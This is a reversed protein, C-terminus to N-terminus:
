RSRWGARRGPVPGTTEAIVTLVDVVDCASALVCMDRPKFGGHATWRIRIATIEGCPSAIVEWIGRNKGRARRPYYVFSGVAIAENSSM